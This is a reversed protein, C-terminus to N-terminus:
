TEGDNGDICGDDDEWFLSTFKMTVGLLNVTELKMTAGM